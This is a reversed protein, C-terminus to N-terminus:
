TQRRDEHSVHGRSIRAAQVGSSEFVIEPYTGTELVEERMTREIERRDKDSVDDTVALSSADIEFQLSAQEPAEPDFGRKARLIAFRSRRTIASRPCCDAPSRGCTFRSMAPDVVYSAALSEAVNMSSAM